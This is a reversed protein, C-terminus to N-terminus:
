NHVTIKVHCQKKKVFPYFLSFLVTTLFVGSWLIKFSWPSVLPFRNCTNKTLNKLRNNVSFCLFPAVFLKISLPKVSVQLKKSCFSEQGSAKRNREKLKRVALIHLPECSSTFM